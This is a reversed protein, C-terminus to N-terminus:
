SKGNIAEERKLYYAKHKGDKQANQRWEDAIKYGKNRLERIIGRPDAFHTKITLEAVTYKEGSALVELIRRQKNPLQQVNM